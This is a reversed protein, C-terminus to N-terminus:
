PPADQQAPKEQQQLQRLQQQTQRQQQAIQQGPIRGTDQDYLPLKLADEIYQLLEEEQINDQLLSAPLRMRRATLPTLASLCV